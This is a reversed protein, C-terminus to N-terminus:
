EYTWSWVVGALIMLVVGVTPWGRLDGREIMGLALVGTLIALITATGLCVAIM